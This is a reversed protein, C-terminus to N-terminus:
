RGSGRASSPKLLRLLLENLESSTKVRAVVRGDRDILIKAPLSNVGFMKVAVPVSTDTTAQTWIVGRTRVVERARAETDRLFDQEVQGQGLTESNMGVIEFGRARYKLYIEKLAPIDALCPGCWSAWFDLLLYSGRFESFHRTKGTFDTFDFDSVVAGAALPASSKEAGTKDAPRKPLADFGANKIQTELELLKPALCITQTCTQYRVQVRLSTLSNALARVPIRFPASGDYYDTALQFNPDYSSHPAPSDIEGTMEFSQGPPISIRTPTPGGEVRETSYLHWGKEIQATLEVVFRDRDKVPESVNTKISWKVPNPETDTEQAFTTAASFCLVLAVKSLRLSSM